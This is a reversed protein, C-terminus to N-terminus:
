SRDEIDALCEDLTEFGTYDGEMQITADKAEQLDAMLEGVEEQSVEGAVVQALLAEQGKKFERNQKTWKSSGDKSMSNLGSASSAKVGFEVISPDFWLGHYFCKVATVIGDANKHFTSAKGGGGGQKATTLAIVQEIIDDVTEDRNAELLSIIPQFAKKITAM